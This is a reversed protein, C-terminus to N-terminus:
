QAYVELENISYGNSSRARNCEIRVYRESRSSFTIESTGGSFDKIERVTSWSSGDRSVRVRFERAYDDHWRIVVRSVSQRSGLDVDLRETSTSRAWWRTDLKGDVANRHSYGRESRTASTSKNLALNDGEPEPASPSSFASEAYVEFESLSYGDRSRAQRMELRVYRANRTPITRVEYGGTGNKFELVRDWSSGNSSVYIRYEEAHLNSYWDFAFAAVPYTAGLDVEFTTDSTSRTWWRTDINGDVANSAHYGSEQRSAKATKNLALNPGDPVPAIIGADSDCLSGLYVAEALRYTALDVRNRSLHDRWRSSDCKVKDARSSHCSTCKSLDGLNQADDFHPVLYARGGYEITAVNFPMTTAAIKFGGKDKMDEGNPRIDEGPGEKIAFMSWFLNFKGKGAGYGTYGPISAPAAHYPKTDHCAACAGYNQIPGGKDHMYQGHCERCAAQHPRDMVEPPVSHCFACNGTQSQMTTHHPDSMHCDACSTSSSAATHCVSCDGGVQMLPDGHHIEPIPATHCAQCSDGSTKITSHCATCDGSIAAPQGHHNPSSHCAACSINVPEAGTHCFLCQGMLFAQTSHHRESALPSGSEFHCASCDLGDVDAGVHCSTCDDMQAPITMHHLDNIAPQGDGTHCGQCDLFTYDAGVHCVTCQGQLALDFAHHRDGVSGNASDHCDNCSQIGVDAGAHCLTCNDAFFADTTHHAEVIDGTGVLTTHCAVCDDPTPMTLAFVPTWQYEHCDMCGLGWEALIADDHHRNGEFTPFSHCSACGSTSTMQTHCSVCDFGGTDALLHHQDRNSEAGHCSQCGTEPQLSTHCSTCSVNQTAAYDHHADQATGPQHCSQCSTTVVINTHCSACSLGQSDVLDHHRVRVSGAHCSQCSTDASMTTHCSVCSVGAAAIEHHRNQTKGQHCSLCDGLDGVGSHCSICNGVLADPTEHHVNQLGFGHCSSCDGETDFGEHCRFCEGAFFWSTEHHREAVDQGHCDSCNIPSTGGNSSAWSATPLCLLAAVLCCIFFVPALRAFDRQVVGM